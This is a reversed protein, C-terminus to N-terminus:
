RNEIVYRIGFKVGPVEYITVKDRLNGGNDHAYRGNLPEFPDLTKLPLREGEIRYKSGHIVM